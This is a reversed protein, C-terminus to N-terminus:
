ELTRCWALHAEAHKFGLARAYRDNTLAEITVMGEELGCVALSRVAGIEREFRAVTAIGVGAAGAVERLSLGLERRRARSRPGCSSSPIPNWEPWAPVLDGPELDLATELRFVTDPTPRRRGLELRLVTERGLDAADGLEQQSWGLSARAESVWRGFDDPVADRPFLLRPARSM